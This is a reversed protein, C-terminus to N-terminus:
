ETRSSNSAGPKKSAKQYEFKQGDVFVYKIYTDEEFLPGTTVVLNAIKGTEVTGMRRSLNLATAANTTLAALAVDEPLGYEIMKRINAHIENPKIDMTMFGFNLGAEYLSAASSLYQNYSIQQRAELNIRETETATHDTVHLSPDYAPYQPGKTTVSDAKADKAKPKKPLKLTAFLPIDADLLIDISEFGEYLGGLMLSYGLDQKLRLARYIDLASNAHMFVPLDGDIVPFFSYHVPDFDPRPVGPTNSAYLSEIQQRRQSERYLQRMKAMVGMPTAPYVRTAAKLQAFMSVDRELVWDNPRDGALLIIAGKGPLMGGHPVVHAATFGAKRLAAISKDETNLLEYASREPQIGARENPPNARNVRPQNQQGSPASGFPSGTPTRKPEPIGAHSLGDIFGAYITLSDGPIVEADFPIQVNSGVATILGDRMLVTSNEVTRGPSIVIRANQIATTHTVESLSDLSQASGSLPSVALLISLLMGCLVLEAREPAFAVSPIRVNM